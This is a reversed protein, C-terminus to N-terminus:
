LLGPTGQLSNLTVKKTMLFLPFTGIIQLFLRGYGIRDELMQMLARSLVPNRLGVEFFFRPFRYFLSTWLLAHEHNRQITRRLRAPYQQPDGALIAEAAM